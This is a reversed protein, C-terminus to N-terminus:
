RTAECQPMTVYGDASPPQRSRPTALIRLMVANNQSLANEICFYEAASMIVPNLYRDALVSMNDVVVYHADASDAAAFFRAPDPSLPYMASRLGSQAFFLTPKRSIVVAGPPLLGPAAEAVRMFDGYGSPMCAFEDGAGGQARCDAAKAMRRLLTPQMMGLVVLVTLLAVTRGAQANREYLDRLLDAMFYILAPVMVLVFREGAWTEPWIVVLGAYLLIFIEVIGHNRVLRVLWWTFAVVLLGIMFPRLAAGTGWILSPALNEIYKGINTFVRQILDAGTVGGLEPNYPDKMTLYSGYGRAGVLRARLSWLMLPPIAIAAFLATDRWRKQLALGAAIAVILPLGASRTLGAAAAALGTLVLWRTREAVKGDEIHSVSWFALMTFAWFLGESLVFGSQELIGPSMALVLGGILAVTRGGLRRLWLVSLAVGAASIFLTFIKLQTWSELGIALAGALSVPFLPPYLTAARQAPDWLELYRGHELLSRALALYLANDGGAYPEPTLLILGLLIHLVACGVAIAAAENRSV